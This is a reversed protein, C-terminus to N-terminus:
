MQDDGDNVAIDNVISSFWFEAGPLMWAVLSVMLLPESEWLTVLLYTFGVVRNM